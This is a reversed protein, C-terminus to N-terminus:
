QTTTTIVEMFELSAERKISYMIMLFLRSKIKTNKDMSSISSNIQILTLTKFHRELIWLSPETHLILQMSEWEWKLSFNEMEEITQVKISM